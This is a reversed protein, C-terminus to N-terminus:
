SALPRRRTARPATPQEVVKLERQLNLLQRTAQDLKENTQRREHTQRRLEERIEALAQSWKLDLSDFGQLTQDALSMGPRPTLYSYPGPPPLAHDPAPPIEPQRKGTRVEAIRGANLGFWAAIDHQRDGRLLMGKVIAADAPSLTTPLKASGEPM